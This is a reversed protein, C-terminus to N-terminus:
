CSFVFCFIKSQLFLVLWFRPQCPVCPNSERYPLFFSGFYFKLERKQTARPIVSRNKLLFFCLLLKQKTPLSGALVKAPMTSMPEIGQLTFFFLWLLVKVRKKTYGTPHGVPKELLFFLAFTKAKYSPFWGFGQSAHYEHTRNGTPYFFLALTFSQSEKKHLGYPAIIVAKIQM